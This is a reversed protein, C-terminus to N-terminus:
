GGTARKEGRRDARFVDRHPEGSSFERADDLGSRVVRQLLSTRLEAPSPSRSRDMLAGLAAGVPGDKRRYEEVDLRARMSEYWFQLVEWGFLEMRYEEPTLAETGGYLYLVVPFIPLQVSVV